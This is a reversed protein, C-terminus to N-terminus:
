SIRAIRAQLTALLGETTHETAVVDVGLGLERATAATVPGICAILPDGYNVGQTLTLFHRVTSSSTFTIVDVGARLADIAAPGAHAMVTHYAVVRDVIAGMARLGESLTPRAIDACAVLVRQGTVEGIEDLIGEAQYDVPVLRVRAGRKDLAKATASGVAALKSQSFVGNSPKRIQSLRAWFQEVGNASTFVIWDYSDLRAIAQDLAGGPEPPAIAIVPFAIPEAGVARLRDILGQARHAARTVVVRRGTLWESM